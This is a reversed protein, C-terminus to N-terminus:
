FSLAQNSNYLENCSISLTHHRFLRLPAVSKENKQVARGGVQNPSPNMTPDLRQVRLM